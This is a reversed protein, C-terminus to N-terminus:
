GAVGYEAACSWWGDDVGAAYGSRYALAAAIVVACIWPSRRM